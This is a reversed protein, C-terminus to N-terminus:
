VSGHTRIGREGGDQKQLISLTYDLGRHNPTSELQERVLERDKRLQSITEDLPTKKLKSKAMFFSGVALVLFFGSFGALVGLAQNWFAFVVTAMIAVLTLFGPIALTAAWAM